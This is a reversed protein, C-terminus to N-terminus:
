PAKRIIVRGSTQTFSLSNVTCVARLVVPLADTAAFSGSFSLGRVDASDFAVRVHYREGVQAFVTTLDDKEFVLGTPVLVALPRRPGAVMPKFSQVRVQRTLLNVTLEQGPTLFHERMSLHSAPTARVVVKGELLRVVVQQSHTANVRFRTGLATTTFGNALVTFPHATDKAVAFLATGHMSLDRGGAGFPAYYAVSSAPQLTVVSGDPLAVRRPANGPNDHRVLKRAPAAPARGRAVQWTAAPRLSVRLGALGVALLVVAAAVWRVWGDRRPVVPAAEV